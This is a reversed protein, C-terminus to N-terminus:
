AAPFDSTVKNGNARKWDPLPRVVGAKDGTAAALILLFREFHIVLYVKTIQRGRRGTIININLIIIVSDM